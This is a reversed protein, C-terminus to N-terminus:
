GAKENKVRSKRLGMRSSWFFLKVGAKYEEVQEKTLNQRHPTTDICWSFGRGCLLCEGAQESGDNLVLHPTKKAAIKPVAIASMPNSAKAPIIKAIDAHAKM